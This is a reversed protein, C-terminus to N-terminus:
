SVRQYHELDETFWGLTEDFLLLKSESRHWTAHWARVHARWEPCKETTMDLYRLPCSYMKPHEKEWFSQADWRRHGTEKLHHARVFRYVGGPMFVDGDFEYPGYHSSAEVVTWLVNGVLRRTVVRCDVPGGFERSPAMLRKILNRKLMKEYIV